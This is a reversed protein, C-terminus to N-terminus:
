GDFRVPMALNTYWYNRYPAVIEHIHNVNYWRDTFLLQTATAIEDCVGNPTLVPDGHYLRVRYVGDRADLLDADFQDRLTGNYRLSRVTIRTTM